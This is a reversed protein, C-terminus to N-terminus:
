VSGKYICTPLCLTNWKNLSVPSDTINSTNFSPEFPFGNKFFVFFGVAVHFGV